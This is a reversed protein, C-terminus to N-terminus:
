ISLLKINSILEDLQYVMENKDATEGQAQILNEIEEVSLDVGSDMYSEDFLQSNRLHLISYNLAVKYYAENGLLLQEKAVFLESVALLSLVQQYTNKFEFDNFSGEIVGKHLAELLVVAEELIVAGKEDVDKELIWISSISHEIKTICKERQGRQNAIVADLLLEDPLKAKENLTPHTERKSNQSVIYLSSFYVALGIIIYAVTKM